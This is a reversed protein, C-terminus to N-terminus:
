CLGPRSFWGDTMFTTEGDSFVLTATGTYRVTVAGDPIDTSAPVAWDPDVPPPQYTNLLYAAAALGIALLAALGLVIIRVAPHKM